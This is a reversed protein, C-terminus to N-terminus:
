SLFGQAALASRLSAVVYDQDEAGLDPFSPLSIGRRSISDAIPLPRVALHQYMPMLHACYFVPRTEVGDAMMDAMLRERDCADPLLISVLWESSEVGQDPIQFEVPFAALAARYRAALARKRALIDGLRESQALGIAAAINTMRYNFGLEEHWYRRTLSQGQGKVKRMRAALVPDRAVVAGGEGTTITKNGFFSFTGVDGFAGPHVGNLSAGLCEACDEIVKLGHREAIAMIAPMDCIAGYLHVPMIARTRATILPEIAAPDLLWDRARSEAFVPIAGTQAIANVSAIYTFSPVIVEDGPGIDLCHIALHLAVTGNCLSIARPVRTIDALSAEFREIYSGISSIWTSDLCDVVYEKERGSLDPRYVPIRRRPEAKSQM